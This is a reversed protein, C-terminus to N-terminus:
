IRRRERERLKEADRWNIQGQFGSAQLLTRGVGAEWSGDRRGASDAFCFAAQKLLDSPGIEREHVLTNCNAKAFLELWRYTSEDVEVTVIKTKM